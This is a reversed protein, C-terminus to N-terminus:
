KPEIDYRSRTPAELIVRESPQEANEVLATCRKSCASLAADILYELIGECPPDNGNPRSRTAQPEPSPTVAKLPPPVVVCTDIYIYKNRDARGDTFLILLCLM